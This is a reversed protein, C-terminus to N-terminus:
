RRWSRGPWPSPDGPWGSPGPPARGPGSTGSTVRELPLRSNGGGLREPGGAFVPVGTNQPHTGDKEPRARPSLRGKRGGTGGCKAPASTRMPGAARPVSQPHVCHVGVQETSSFEAQALTKGEPCFAQVRRGARLANGGGEKRSKKIKFSTSNMPLRTTMARPPFRGLVARRGPPGRRNKSARRFQIGGAGLNQGEPLVSTRAERRTPM